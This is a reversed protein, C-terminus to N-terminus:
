TGGRVRLTECASSPGALRRAKTMHRGCAAFIFDHRRVSAIVAENGLTPADEIPQADSPWPSAPEVPREERGGLYETEVVANTHVPAGTHAWTRRNQYAIM